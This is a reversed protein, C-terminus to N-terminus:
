ANPSCFATTSSPRRRMEVADRTSVVALNHVDYNTLTTNAFPDRFRHPLFFHTRAFDLERAPADDADPSYFIRGSPIWFPGDGNLDRYEAQALISRMEDANAKAQFVDLLGRTLALKYIEGPLAMSELRGLPLFGDLDNKRYISRSREILRKEIRGPAPHADYPIERASKALFVVSDFDLPRFGKLEPATLEYSSAQSSLPTRYDDPELVANTYQSETITALTKAQEEFAPKRRQYGISASKLLNGYEDVALTL